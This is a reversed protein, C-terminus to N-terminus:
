PIYPASSTLGGEALVFWAQPALWQNLAASQGAAPGGAGRSLRVSGIAVDQYVPPLGDSYGQSAYWDVQECTARALIALTDVDTEDYVAVRLARRVDLTARMAKLAFRVPVDKGPIYLAWDAETAFATLPTTM